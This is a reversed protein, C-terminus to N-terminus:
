HSNQVLLTDLFPIKRDIEEECKFKIKKHFNDLTDLVFKISGKKVFCISDDLFCRWSSLKSSLNPILATELEVMFINALVPGLPSGIAVSDNQIYINNNFTLHVNKTYLYLLERMECRPIDTVIEKKEYIRRLIVNITDELPINKFLLAAHFSSVMTYDKPIKQKKIKKTFEKTSKLTYQSKSLPKLLQALYKPLHYTATGINSIKARIPLHYVKGNTDLKDIKEKGYLKGPSSGTPYVELCINSPLKLKEYHGKFIGKLATVQIVIHNQINIAIWFLYVNKM